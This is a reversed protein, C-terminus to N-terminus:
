LVVRSTMKARSQVRWEFKEWRFSRNSLSRTNHHCSTDGTVPIDISIFSLVTFYYMDTSIETRANLLNTGQVRKLEKTKRRREASIISFHNCPSSHLQNFLPVVRFLKPQNIINAPTFRYDWPLGNRWRQIDMCLLFNSPISRFFNGLLGSSENAYTMEKKRQINTSHLFLIKM